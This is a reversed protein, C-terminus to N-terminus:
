PFKQPVPKPLFIIIKEFTLTLNNTACNHGVRQLGMSQLEGSEETWPTRWAHISSHTPMGEELFDERCLNFKHRGCEPLNKVMQAM